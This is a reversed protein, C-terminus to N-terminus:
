GKRSTSHHGVVAIIREGQALNIRNLPAQSFTGHLPKLVEQYKANLYTVQIYNIVGRPYSGGIDIQRIDPHCPDEFYTGGPGGYM